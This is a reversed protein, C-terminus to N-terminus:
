KKGTKRADPKRVKELERAARLIEARLATLLEKRKSM